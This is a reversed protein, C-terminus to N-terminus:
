RLHFLLYRKEDNQERLFSRRSDALLDFPLTSQLVLAWPDERRYRAAPQSFVPTSDAQGRVSNRYATKKFFIRALLRHNLGARAIRQPRRSIGLTTASKRAALARAQCAAGRTRCSPLVEADAFESGDYWGLGLKILQLGVDCTVDAPQYNTIADEATSCYAFGIERHQGDRAVVKIRITKYRILKRLAIRADRYFPQGSKPTDVGRLIIFHATEDTTFQFSDGMFQSYAIGSIEYPFDERLPAPMLRDGTLLPDNCGFGLMLVVLILGYRWSRPKIAIGFERSFEPKM